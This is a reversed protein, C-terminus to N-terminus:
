PTDLKYDPSADFGVEGPACGEPEHDTGDLDSGNKLGTVEDAAGDVAGRVDDDDPESDPVSKSFCKKLYPYLEIHM